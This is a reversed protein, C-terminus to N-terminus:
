HGGKPSMDMFLHALHNERKHRGAEAGIAEYKPTEARVQDLEARSRKLAEEARKRAASGGTDTVDWRPRPRKRKLWACMM